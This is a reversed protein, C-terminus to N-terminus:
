QEINKTASMSYAAMPLFYTGLMTEKKKGIKKTAFTSYAAM